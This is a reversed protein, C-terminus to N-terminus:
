SQVAAGCDLEATAVETDLQALRVCEEFTAGAVARLEEVTSANYIVLDGAVFPLGQESAHERVAGPGGERRLHVVFGGLERILAAEEPFRVDSIVLGPAYFFEPSAIAEEIVRRALRVWLDPAVIQRGWETGLTQMLERPSRGLWPIPAEKRERDEIDEWELGLMSMLGAKIPLAFAYRLTNFEATLHEAVTDKGAGARGTLGLLVLPFPRQTKTTTTM